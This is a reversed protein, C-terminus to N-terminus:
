TKRHRSRELSPRLFLKRMISNKNKIRTLNNPRVVSVRRIDFGPIFNMGCGLISRFVRRM